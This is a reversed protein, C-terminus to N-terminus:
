IECRSRYKYTSPGSELISLLINQIIELRELTEKSKVHALEWKGNFDDIAHTPFIDNEKPLARRKKKSANKRAKRNKVTENIQCM